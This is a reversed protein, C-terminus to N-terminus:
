KIKKLIENSKTTFRSDENEQIEQLTAKADKVQNNRLYALALYWTSFEQITIDSSKSAIQLDRIANKADKNSLYSLGRYFAINDIRNQVSDKQADSYDNKIVPLGKPLAKLAEKPKNAYYLEIGNILDSPADSRFKPLDNYYADSLKQNDNLALLEDQKPAEIQKIPEKTSKTSDPKNDATNNIPDTQTFLYYTSIALFGVFSAVLAIRFTNQQWMSVVKTEKQTAKPEEKDTTSQNIKELFDTNYKKIREQKQIKIEINLLRQFKTEELLEPRQLLENEFAKKEDVSFKKSLYLEIKDLDKVTIM